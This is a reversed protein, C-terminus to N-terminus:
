PGSSSASAPAAGPPWGNTTMKALTFGLIAILAFLALSCINLIKPPWVPHSTLSVALAIVATAPGTDPQTM